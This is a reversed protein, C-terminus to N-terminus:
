KGLKACAGPHGMKCAAEYRKQRSDGDDPLALAREYMLGVNFCGAAVGLKCAEAFLKHALRHDQSVPSTGELAMGGLSICADGSKANCGKEFLKAAGVTDGADFRWLGLENCADGIEGDCARVYLKEGAAEDKGIGTGRMLMTGLNVCATLEDADCAKEFLKAARPPDAPYGLGDDVLLVGLNSCSKMDGAKCM